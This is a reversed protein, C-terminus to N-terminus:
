GAGEKAAGRLGKVGRGRFEVAVEAELVEERHEGALFARRHRRWGPRATAVASWAQRSGMGGRRWPVSQVARSVDAVGVPGFVLLALGLVVVEHCLDGVTFGLHFVSQDGGVVLVLGVDTRSQFRFGVESVLRM